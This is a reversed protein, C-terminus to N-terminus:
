KVIAIKIVAVHSGTGGTAEIRALYVGSQIGSVDWTVEGDLGARSQGHLETIKM